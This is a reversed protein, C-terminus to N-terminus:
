GCGFQRVVRQGKGEKTSEPSQVDPPLQSTSSGVGSALIGVGMEETRNRMECWISHYTNLPKPSFTYHMFGCLICGGFHLVFLSVPRVGSLNRSQKGSCGPRQRGLIDTKTQITISPPACVTIQFQREPRRRQVSSHAIELVRM